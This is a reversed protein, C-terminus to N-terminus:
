INDTHHIEQLAGFYRKNSTSVYGILWFPVGEGLMLLALTDVM